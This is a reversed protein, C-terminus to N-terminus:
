KGRREQQLSKKKFDINDWYVKGKTEIEELREEYEQKKIYEEKISLYTNVQSVSIGIVLATQLTNHVQRQCFVVRAFTDVYREVAHLTHKIANAIELPEKGELFLKVAKERHTITPGIDKQQGRTPVIINQKKLEYIDRRITRVDSGLIKSLDEQTLYTEQDKAETTLRLIQVKRKASLGYLKHVKEDGSDIYTIIIRKMQCDEMAKGAPENASVALWVMQGPQLIRGESYEGICYVEKAKRAIIQSEFPSCSTGQNIINIFMTECTKIDLRAQMLEKQHNYNQIM